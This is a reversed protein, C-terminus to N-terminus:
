KKKRREKLNKQRTQIIMVVTAIVFFLVLSVIGYTINVSGNRYLSTAFFQILISNGVNVNVKYIKTEDDSTVIIEGDYLGDQTNEPIELYYTIFKSNGSIGGKKLIELSLQKIIQEDSFSMWESAIKTPNILVEVDIDAVYTNVIEIEIPKSSGSQIYITDTSPNIYFRSINLDEEIILTGGDSTGGGGSSPFTTYVNFLDNLVITEKNEYADYVEIKNYVWEGTTKFSYLTSYINSGTPQMLLQSIIKITGNPQTFYHKIEKIDSNDVATVQLTETYSTLTDPVLENSIIVPALFDDVIATIDVPLSVNFQLDGIFFVLNITDGSAYETNNLSLLNDFDPLHTGNVSWVSNNIIINNEADYSQFEFDISTPYSVFRFDTIEPQTNIIINSSKISENTSGDTSYYRFYRSNLFQISEAYLINPSCSNVTDLCYYISLCDTCSLSGNVYDGYHINSPTYAISDEDIGVFTTVPLASVMPLIFIFLWFLLIKNKM